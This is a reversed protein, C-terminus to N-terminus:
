DVLVNKGDNTVVRTNVKEKTWRELDIINIYMRIKELDYISVQFWNERTEGGGLHM